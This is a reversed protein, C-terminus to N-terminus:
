MEEHMLINISDTSAPVQVHKIKQSNPICPFHIKLNFLGRSDNRLLFHHFFLLKNSFYKHDQGLFFFFFCAPPHQFDGRAGELAEPIIFGSLLKFRSNKM